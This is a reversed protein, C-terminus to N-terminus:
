NECSSAQDQHVDALNNYRTAVDPHDEGSPQEGIVIAKKYLEIAEEFLNGRGLLLVLLHATFSLYVTLM